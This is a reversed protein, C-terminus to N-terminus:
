KQVADTKKMVQMGVCAGSLLIAIVSLGLAAWVKKSTPPTVPAAPAATLDNVVMTKSYPGVKSFDAMGKDNKPQAATPGQDWSVTSGDSYGQYVKWDLETPQPPVQADFEFVDKQGAPIAGGTWDIETPVSDAVDGDAAVPPTMGAPIPGSKVTIRWGSKVVPTVFNLGPPLVLRVNTTTADKESPVSLMFDQTAAIGVQDPKVVSHAFVPSISLAFSMGISMASVTLTKKNM